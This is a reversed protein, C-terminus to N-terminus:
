KYLEFKTRAANDVKLIGNNKNGFFTVNFVGFDNQQYLIQVMEPINDIRHNIHESIIKDNEYKTIHIM